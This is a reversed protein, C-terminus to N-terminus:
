GEVGGWGGGGYGASANGSSLWSSRFYSPAGNATTPTCLAFNEASVSVSAMREAPPNPPPTTTAAYKHPQASATM